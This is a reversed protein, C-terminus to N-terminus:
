AHEDGTAEDYRKRWSAETRYLKNRHSALGALGAISFALLVRRRFKPPPEVDGPPLIKNNCPPSDQLSDRLRGAM